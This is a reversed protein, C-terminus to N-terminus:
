KSKRVFLSTRPASYGTGRKIVKLVDDQLDKKQAALMAKNQDFVRMGKTMALYADRSIEGSELMEEVVGPNFTLSGKSYERSWDKNTGPIHVREPDQPRALIYHGKADRETAPHHGDEDDTAVPFAKGAQEATVDMHTRVIVKLDEQRDNILEAISSLVEREDYLAKQEEETLARREDPVVVAFVDKLRALAQKVDDTLVPASPPAPFPVMEKRETDVEPLATMADRVKVFDASEKLVIRGKALYPEIETSQDNM